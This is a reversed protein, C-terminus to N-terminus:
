VGGTPEDNYIIAQLLIKNRLNSLILHNINRHVLGGYHSKSFSDHSMNVNMNEVVVIKTQLTQYHFSFSFPLRQSNIKEM